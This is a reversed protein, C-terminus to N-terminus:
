REGESEREHDSATRNAMSQNLVGFRAMETSTRDREIGVM